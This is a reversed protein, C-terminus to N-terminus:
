DCGQKDRGRTGVDEREVEGRGRTRRGRTVRGPRGSDLKGADSDERRLDWTGTGSKSVAWSFLWSGQCHKLAKLAM